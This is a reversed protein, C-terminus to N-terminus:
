RKRTRQRKNLKICFEAIDILCTKELIPEGESFFAYQRWPAHWRIQGLNFIGRPNDKTFVNYIWTKPNQKRNRVFELYKTTNSNM